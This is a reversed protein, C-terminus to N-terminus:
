WESGDKECNRNAYRGEGGDFMEWVYVLGKSSYAEGTQLGYVTLDILSKPPAMDLTKKVLRIDNM